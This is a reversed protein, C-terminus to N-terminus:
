HPLGYNEGGYPNFVFDTIKDLVKQYLMVRDEEPINFESDEGFVSLSDEIKEDVLTESIENNQVIEVLKMKRIQEAIRKEKLELEKINTMESKGRLTGKIDEEDDSSYFNCSFFGFRGLHFRM